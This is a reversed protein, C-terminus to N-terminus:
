VGMLVSLICLCPPPRMVYMCLVTVKVFMVIGVCMLMCFVSSCIVLICKVLSLASCRAFMYMGGRSVVSGFWLVSSVSMVFVNMYRVVSFLVSIAPSMFACSSRHYEGVVSWRPVSIASMMSFEVCLVRLVFVGVLFGGCASWCGVEGSMVVAGCLM